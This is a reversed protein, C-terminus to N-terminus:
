FDMNKYINYDKALYTELDNCMRDNGALKFRYMTFFHLFMNSM